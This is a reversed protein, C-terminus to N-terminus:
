INNKTIQACKTCSTLWNLSGELVIKCRLLVIPAQKQCCVLNLNQGELAFLTSLGAEDKEPFSQFIIM